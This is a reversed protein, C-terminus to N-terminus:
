YEKENERTTRAGTDHDAFGRGDAKKAYGGDGRQNQQKLMFAFHMYTSARTVLRSPARDLRKVCRQTHIHMRTMLLAPRLPFLREFGFRTSAYIYTCVSVVHMFSDVDGWRAMFRHGFGCERSSSRCRSRGHGQAESRLDIHLASVYM